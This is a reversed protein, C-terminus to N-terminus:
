FGNEGKTTPTEYKSYGLSEAMQPCLTKLLTGKRCLFGPNGTVECTKYSMREAMDIVGKIFDDSYGDTYIRLGGFKEKIQAFKFDEFKGMRKLHNELVECMSSIIGLWGDDCWLSFPRRKHDVPFFPKELLSSKNM